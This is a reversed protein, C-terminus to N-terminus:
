RDYCGFYAVWELTQSGPFYKIAQAKQAPQGSETAMTRIASSNQPLYYISSSLRQRASLLTQSTVGVALKEHVSASLSVM